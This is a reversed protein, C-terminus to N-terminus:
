RFCITELIDLMNQRHEAFQSIRRGNLGSPHPFGWLVNDAAEGLIDKLINEVAAGLPIILRIDKLCSLETM